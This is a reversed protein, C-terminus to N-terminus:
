CELGGEVNLTRGTAPRGTSSLSVVRRRTQDGAEDCFVLQTAALLNVPFGDAGFSVGNSIP